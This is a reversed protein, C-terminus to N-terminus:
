HSKETMIKFFKDRNIEDFIRDKFCDFLEEKNFGEELAYKVVNSNLIFFGIKVKKNELYEGVAGVVGKENIIPIFSHDLTTDDIFLEVGNIIAAKELEKALSTLTM